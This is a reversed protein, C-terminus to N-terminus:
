PYVNNEKEGNFAAKTKEMGAKGFTKKNEFGIELREPRTKKEDEGL